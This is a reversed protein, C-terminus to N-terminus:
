AVLCKGYELAIKDHPAYHMSKFIEQAYINTIEDQLANRAHDLELGNERIIDAALRVLAPSDTAVECLCLIQYLGHVVDPPLLRQLM